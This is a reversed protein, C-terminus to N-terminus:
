LELHCCLSTILHHVNASPSGPLDSLSPSRPEGQFSLVQAGKIRLVLGAKRYKLGETGEGLQARIDIAMRCGTLLKGLLFWLCPCLEARCPSRGNSNYWLLLLWSDQPTHQDAFSLVLPENCFQAMHWDTPNQLRLNLGRRARSAGGM